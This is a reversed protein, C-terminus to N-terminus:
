EPRRILIEGVVFGIGVLVGGILGHEAHILDHAGYMCTFMLIMLAIRILAQKM